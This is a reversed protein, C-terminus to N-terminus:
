YKVRRKYIIHHFFLLKFQRLLERSSMAIPIYGVKTRLVVLYRAGSALACIIGLISLVGTKWVPLKVQPLVSLSKLMM